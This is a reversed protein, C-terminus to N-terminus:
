DGDIVWSFSAIQMVAVAPCRKADSCPCIWRTGIRYVAHRLDLKPTTFLYLRDDDTSFVRMEGLVKLVDEMHELPQFNETLECWDEENV